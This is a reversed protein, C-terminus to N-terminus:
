LVLVVKWKGDRRALEDQGEEGNAQEYRVTAEQGRIDVELFRVPRVAACEARLDSKLQEYGDPDAQTFVEIAVEVEGMAEPNALYKRTVLMDGSACLEASLALLTDEPTDGKWAALMLVVPLLVLLKLTRVPSGKRNTAAPFGPM